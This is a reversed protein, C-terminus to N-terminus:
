TQAAFWHARAKIILAKAADEDLGTLEQLEDVALDALDDRTHVNGESLKGVLTPTM